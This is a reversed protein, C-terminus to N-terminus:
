RMELPLSESKRDVAWRALSQMALTCELGLELLANSCDRSMRSYM